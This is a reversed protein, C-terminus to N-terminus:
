SWSFNKSFSKEGLIHLLNVLTITLLYMYGLGTLSSSLQRSALAWELVPCYANYLPNEIIRVEIIQIRNNSTPERQWTKPELPFLCQPQQLKAVPSLLAATRIVKRFVVVREM